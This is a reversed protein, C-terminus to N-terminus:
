TVKIIRGCADFTIVLLICLLRFGHKHTSRGIYRSIDQFGRTQMLDISCGVVLPLLLTINFIIPQSMNNLIVPAWIIFMGTSIFLTTAYKASPKKWTISIDFFVIQGSHWQTSQGRNLVWQTSLSLFFVPILQIQRGLWVCHLKM